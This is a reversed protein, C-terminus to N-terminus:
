SKHGEELLLGVEEMGRKYVGVYERIEEPPLPGTNLVETVLQLPKLARVRQVAIEFARVDSGRATDPSPKKKLVDFFAAGKIDFGAARMSALRILCPVCYGCHTGIPRKQFRGADARSCSLTFPLGSRLVEQDRANRLMEGKTFFRYPLEVTVQINLAALIERYLSIFHPHTTRTSLSGSRSYALPVNLSILGNESIYLPAGTRCASAVATGLALFLISRSRMTDEAIQGEIKSPQVFFGFRLTRNRYVNAIARHSNVQSSNTSGKGYQGVLALLGDSEELLDIAGIFSDLGGSFLTVKNPLPQLPEKITPRRLAERARFLVRWKDGTLFSLMRTITPLAGEWRGPDHVPLYLTIVRTWHDQATRRQIRVDAAYVSMAMHLLDIVTDQLELGDKHIKELVNNSVQYPSSPKEFAVMLRLDSPQLEPIFNDNAGVQCVVHWSM